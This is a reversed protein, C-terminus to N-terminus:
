GGLSRDMTVNGRKRPKDSLDPGPLHGTRPRYLNPGCGPLLEFEEEFRPTILDRRERIRVFNVPYRGIVEWFDDELAPLWITTAETLWVVASADEGVVLPKEVRAICQAWDPGRDIIIEPRHEAELLVTRFLQMDNFEEPISPILPAALLLALGIYRIRGGFRLWGTTGLVLLAPFMPAFYRARPLALSLGITTGVALLAFALSLRDRRFCAVLLGVCASLNASALPWQALFVPLLTRAKEVPDMAWPATVDPVLMHMLTTTMSRDTLGFYMAWRYYTFFPNETLVWNRIWWPMAVLVFGTLCEVVARRPSPGLALALLVVPLLSIANYRTLYALACVVGLWLGRTQRALLLFVLLILVALLTETGALLALVQGQPSTAVAVGAIAGAWGGAIQQGLSAALAASLSFLLLLVVHVAWEEPGSIVFAAAMTIPWLPPRVLSSHNEAVGFDLEVPYILNTTFGDGRALHRGIDAYEMEDGDWLAWPLPQHSWLWTFAALLAAALPVPNRALIAILRSL